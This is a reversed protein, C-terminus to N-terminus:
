PAKPLDLCLCASVLWLEGYEDWTIHDRDLAPIM